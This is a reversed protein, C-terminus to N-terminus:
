QYGMANSCSKSWTEVFVTRSSLSFQVSKLVGLLPLYPM